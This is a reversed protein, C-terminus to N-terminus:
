PIYIFESSNLIALCASQLGFEKSLATLEAMEENSAERGLATSFAEPISGTAEALDAAIKQAFGSNLLWLPQLSTTSVRRQSCSVNGGASDFLMQQDPLNDRRQKLYLSRRKSGSNVPDSKRGPRDELQDAVALLSDRIAEAELRRPLWRWLTANEPDLEANAASFDSSQRFTASDLILRHIHKTSWNSDILESALFDLLEPHSPPTGQKGFDGSTEVLGRGFHWQWIRNVWVRAVLPNKEPDTLWNALATRPKAIDEPTPGFVAPWGPSVKPGPANVDGRLLLHTNLNELTERKRSLPWRMEHPAIPRDRSATLPSYFGWTQPLEAIQKELEAYRKKDEAKMGSVVSKPIVLIPEPDGRKRKVSVIRAHTRDFIEWREAILERAKSDIGADFVVNAPQAKEFFAMLRYYDRISVPDFKHTHCQACEFTLGMFASGTTNVVDVLIDNRQIKKDLENGSYRAAALFGTAVANDDSWPELEDGAIQAWLFDDYPMDHNFARVVWDRYRWAHPRDRNHQHGNSEAWRAVDLWHRGWREGYAPHELVGDTTWNQDGPPLGLMVLSLRRNLVEESAESNPAIGLAEQKKLIFHDIPSKVWASNEVEPIEPRAIPQFAWHDTQPQPTPLITEDWVLGEDIWTRLTKIEAKSLPEGKPPMEGHIVVDFIPSSEANGPSSLNLVEDFIDLRIDKKADEGEHCKFCRNELIPLVHKAFVITKPKPKEVKTPKIEVKPPLGLIGEWTKALELDWVFIRDEMETKGGTSFGLWNIKSISKPNKTFAHPKFEANAEPDVWLDLHDFPQDAGSTSKWIRAVVLFERDGILEAAFREGGVSQRVMFRNQGEKSVHIGINPVGNGHNSQDSGESEDAWLVFFEGEDEEATDISKADYSIRYRVFIEDGAFNENLKKRLPNNRSGTGNIEFRQQAFGNQKWENALLEPGEARAPTERFLILLISLALGRRWEKLRM